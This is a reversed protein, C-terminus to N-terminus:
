SRIAVNSLKPYTEIKYIINKIIEVKHNSHNFIKLTWCLTTNITSIFSLTLKHKKRENHHKQM